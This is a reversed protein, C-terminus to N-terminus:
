TWSSSESASASGRVDSPTNTCSAVNRGLTPSRTRTVPRTASNLSRVSIVRTWSTTVHACPSGNGVGAAMVSGTAESASRSANSPM